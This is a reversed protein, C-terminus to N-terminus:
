EAPPLGSPSPLRTVAPASGGGAMPSAAALAARLAENDRRLLTIEAEKRGLLTFLDDVTLDM